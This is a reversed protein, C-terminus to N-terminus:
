KQEPKVTPDAPKQEPKPEPKPAPIAAKEKSLPLGRKMAPEVWDDRMECFGGRPIEFVVGDIEFRLDKGECHANFLRM